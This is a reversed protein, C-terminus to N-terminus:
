RQKNYYTSNGQFDKDSLDKLCANHERPEMLWILYTNDKLLTLCDYYAANSQRWNCLMGWETNPFQNM